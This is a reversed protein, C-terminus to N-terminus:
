MNLDENIRSNNTKEPKKRRKKKLRLTMKKIRVIM